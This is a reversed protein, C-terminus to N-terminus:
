EKVNKRVVPHNESRRAVEVFGEALFPKLLGMYSSLDDVKGEHDMPYAEVIQAGHAAAYDVAGRLLARMVGKRRWKRAIFFCVISWVPQEDVPALVRSRALAAYDSRPALSVWGVPQEGAYALLGTVTGGQVLGHMQERNQDGNRDKWAGDRRFYMCWCGGVAGHSGFLTTFDEWREPTLPQIAYETPVM